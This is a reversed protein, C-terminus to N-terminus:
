RDSARTTTAAGCAFNAAEDISGSGKYKAVQPYACVPRTRIAGQAPDDNKYKTAVLLDPATGREVWADLATMIDEMRDERDSEEGEELGEHIAFEVAHRPHYADKRAKEEVRLREDEDLMGLAEKLREFRALITRADEKGVLEYLIGESFLPWTSRGGDEFTVEVWWARDEFLVDKVTASRWPKVGFAQASVDFASVRAGVKWEPKKPKM